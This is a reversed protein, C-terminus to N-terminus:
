ADSEHASADHVPAGLKISMHVLQAASTAAMKRMLQARQEKVTAESTGFNAAIQKNALGAAVGAMVDRERPTLKRYRRKLEALDARERLVAHQNELADRVAAVLEAPRFPKTFFELAGGKIAKVSMPIDGRGTLFVVAPPSDLRSLQKQLDLGSLDPLFVDLLLCSPTSSGQYADLFAQASHFAQVLFGESSFLRCLSERVSEDDDVVFVVPEVESKARKEPSVPDLAM